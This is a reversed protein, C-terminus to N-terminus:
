HRLLEYSEVLVQTGRKLCHNRPRHALELLLLQLLLQRARPMMYALEGNHVRDAGRRRRIM